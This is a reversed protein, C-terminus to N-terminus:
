EDVGCIAVSSGSCALFQSNLYFSCLGPRQGEPTIAMKGSSSFSREPSYLFEGWTGWSLSILLQTLIRVRAKRAGLGM